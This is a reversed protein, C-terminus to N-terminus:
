MTENLVIRIERRKWSTKESQLKIPKLRSAETQHTQLTGKPGATLYIKDAFTLIFHINLYVASTLM